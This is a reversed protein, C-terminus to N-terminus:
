LSAAIRVIMSMCVTDDLAGPHFTAIVSLYLSEAHEIQYHWRAAPEVCDARNRSMIVRFAKALSLTCQALVREKKGLFRM